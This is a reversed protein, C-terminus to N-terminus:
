VLHSYHKQLIVLVHESISKGNILADLKIIQALNKPCATTINWNNGNNNKARKTAITSGNRWTRVTQKKTKHKM